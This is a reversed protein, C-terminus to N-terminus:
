MSFSTLVPRFDLGKGADGSKNSLDIVRIEFNGDLKEGYFANSHFRFKQVGLAPLLNTKGGAYWATFAPLLISRTNTKTNVIEFQLMGPNVAQGSNNTVSLDIRITGSTATGDAFSATASNVGAGSLKSPASASGNTTLLEAARRGAPATYAIALKVAADADVLGFGYRNQFNFGASNAIWPMDLNWGTAAGTAKFSPMTAASGVVTDDVKRATKALIFGVDQWTLLPNAELMLAAIGSISPTAASTGNMQGTYNCSPDKSGAAGFLDAVLQSIMAGIQAILGDRNAVNNQGSACGSNDTTIIAAEQVGFEGGFGTIWM